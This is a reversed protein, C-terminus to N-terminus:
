RMAATEVPWFAQPLTRGVKSLAAQIAPRRGLEAWGDTWITRRQGPVSGFPQLSDLVADVRNEDALASLVIAEAEDLREICILGSATVEAADKEHAKLDEILMSLDQKPDVAHATCLKLRRVLQRAYPSGYREAQRGTEDQLAAAEKWRGNAVRFHLRNIVMSILWPSKDIDVATLTAYLRDAEDPRALARLVAAHSNILWGSDESIAALEKDTMAVGAALADADEFRGMQRYADVLARIAVVSQAPSTAFAESAEKVAAAAATAMHAGAQAELAPWIPAYVRDVLARRLLDPRYVAQMIRAADEAHGNEILVRAAMLKLWGRDEIEASGVGAREMRVLLAGAEAKRKDAKLKDVIWIADRLRIGRLSEPDRSILTELAARGIEADNVGYAFELKFRIPEMANRDMAEADAIRGLGKVRQGDVVLLLGQLMVIRQRQQTPLDLALVRDLRGLVARHDGSALDQQLGQLEARASQDQASAGVAQKESDPKKAFVAPTAILLAPLIM